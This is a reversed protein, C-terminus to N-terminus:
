SLKDVLVSSAELYFNEIDKFTISNNAALLAGKWEKDIWLGNKLSSLSNYDIPIGWGYTYFYPLDSLSDAIAYGLGLGKSMDHQSSLDILMGTDFHHPWIRIETANKYAKSISELANQCFNRHNILELISKEADTDLDIFTTHDSDLSFGLNYNFRNEDLSVLSLHKKLWSDLDTKALGLVDLTITETPSVLKLVLDKIHLELHINNVSRSIIAEKEVSWLLNSQSDDEAKDLYSNSFAALTQSLHHLKNQTQNLTSM